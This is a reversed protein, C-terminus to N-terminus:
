AAFRLPSRRQTKCRTIADVGIGVMNLEEGVLRLRVLPAKAM